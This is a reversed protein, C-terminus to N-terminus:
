LDLTFSVKAVLSKKVGARSIFGLKIQCRRRSGAPQCGVCRSWEGGWSCLFQPGHEGEQVPTPTVEKQGAM